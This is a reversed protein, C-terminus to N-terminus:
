LTCTLFRRLPCCVMDSFVLMYEYLFIFGIITNILVDHLVFPPLSLLLICRVM